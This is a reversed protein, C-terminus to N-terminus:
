RYAAGELKKRIRVFISRVKSSSFGVKQAIGDFDIKGNGKIMRQRGNKGFIYEYVVKEESTLDYYIFSLLEDDSSTEFASVEDVGGELSLDRHVEKRLSTVESLSMNLRDALEATSPERGLEDHLNALENQYLGVKMARPEPMHGLNQFMYNLRKAKQHVSNYVHTQLSAGASPSYTRLADHFNQAAWIQHASMPINSGYSAKKAAHVLLPKMSKYLAQFHDPNQGKRWKKYLDMEDTKKNDM